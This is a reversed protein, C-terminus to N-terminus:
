LTRQLSFNIRARNYFLHASSCSIHVPLLNNTIHHRQQEQGSHVSFRLLNGDAIIQEVVSPKGRVQSHSDPQRRMPRGSQGNAVSRPRGVVIRRAFPTVQQHRGVHAVPSVRDVHMVEEAEVEDITVVIHGVQLEGESQPLRHAVLAPLTVETGHTGVITVRPRQAAMPIYLGMQTSGQAVGAEGAIGAAVTTRSQTAAVLQENQRLGSQANDVVDGTTCLTFCLGDPLHHCLHHRRCRSRIQLHLLRKNRLQCRHGIEGSTCSLQLLLIGHHSVHRRILWVVAGADQAPLFACEEHM